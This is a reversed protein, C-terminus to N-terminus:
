EDAADSTYLLCGRTVRKSDVPPEDKLVAWLFAGLWGIITWGLFFNLLIIWLLHQHGRCYAIFSPLAYLLIGIVIVLSVTEIVM